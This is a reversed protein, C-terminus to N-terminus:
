NGRDLSRALIAALRANADDDASLSLLVAALALACLNLPPPSVSELPLLELATIPPVLYFKADLEQVSFTLYNPLNASNSTSLM